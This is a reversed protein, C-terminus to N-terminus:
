ANQIDEKHEAEGNGKSLQNVIYKAIIRAHRERIEKKSAECIYVTTGDNLKMPKIKNTRM